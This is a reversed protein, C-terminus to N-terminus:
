AGVTPTQANKQNKPHLKEVEICLANIAEQRANIAYDNSFLNGTLAFYRVNDYLEVAVGKGLDPLQFKNRVDPPLKGKVIVHLGTGSQSRETYSNLQNLWVLVQPVLQGTELNIVHDFDIGVLGSGGFEFGVGTYEGRQVAAIAKDYSTWTSPNSAKAPTGTEPNWPIKKKDEPLGAKGWCVWNPLTIMEKPFIM